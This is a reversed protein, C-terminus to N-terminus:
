NKECFIKTDFALWPRISFSIRPVMFSFKHIEAIRRSVLILKITFKTEVNKDNCYPCEFWSCKINKQVNKPGSYFSYKKYLTRSSNAKTSKTISKLSFM